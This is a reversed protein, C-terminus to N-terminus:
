AASCAAHGVIVDFGTLSLPSGAPVRLHVANVEGSNRTATSTNVQENLTITAVTLTDTGINLVTNPDPASTSPTDIPLGLAGLLALSSTVIASGSMTLGAKDARCDAHVAKLNLLGFLLGIDAVDASSVSSGSSGPVNRTSVKAGHLEVACSPTFLACVTPVYTSALTRSSTLLSNTTSVLPTEPVNVPVAALTLATVAGAAKIGYANGSATTVTPLTAGLASGIAFASMATALAATGVARALGIRTNM